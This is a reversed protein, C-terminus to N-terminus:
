AAFAVVFAAMLSFGFFLVSPVELAGASSGSGAKTTTATTTATVSSGATSSAAGATTTTTAATTTTVSRTLAQAWEINGRTGLDAVLAQAVVDDEPDGNRPTRGMMGFNRLTDEEPKTFEFSCVAKFNPHALAYDFIENWWGRKVDLRSFTSTANPTPTGTLNAFNESAPNWGYHYTAGTEALIFPKGGRSANPFTWNRRIGESGVGDGSFMGYFDYFGWNTGYNQWEEPPLANGSMQASFQGPGPPVNQRWPWWSGYHYISLGVWDVYEDGPYYATYPDSFSDLGATLTTNEFKGRHPIGLVAQEETPLPEM